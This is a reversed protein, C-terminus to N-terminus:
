GSKKWLMLRAYVPNPTSKTFTAAVNIVSSKENIPNLGKAHVVEMDKWGTLLIIALNYGNIYIWRM